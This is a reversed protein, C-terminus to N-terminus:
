TILYSLSKCYTQPKRRNGGGIFSVAVIYYSINNFTANFVMFRVLGMKMPILLGHFEIGGHIEFKTSFTLSYLILYVIVLKLLCKISQSNTAQRGAVFIDHINLIFVLEIIHLFNYLFSPPISYYLPLMSQSGRFSYPSKPSVVIFIDWKEDM